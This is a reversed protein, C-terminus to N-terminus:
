GWIMKTIINRKISIAKYPCVEHCCLCRICKKYDVSCYDREIEICNVPCTIKCLNCRACINADIYPKFRIISAVGRAISKPVYKLLTTQSLKFDEVAFNKISDGLIEIKSLDAEGLKMNYAEKTVLIDLPELGVIKALCSDIAVADTGAMILNMSRQRGASPGDGEMATIGDVISLHPRSVSYIKAVVKAFDEEKPAKSHCVTKHLGTMTGYMNKIAATLITLCHTKFKPVSIVLDSEFVRRAIPFGEILRSTTFRVLEVDEEAAMKKMGSAEFVKDINKYYGGPSDGVVPVGKASKVLRVVARVVEPHTDVADEPPRASLLNPKVLVKMGPKVFSEMGGLLDVARKVGDFVRQTYYDQCKVLSVKASM